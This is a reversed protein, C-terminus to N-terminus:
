THKPKKSKGSPGEALKARLMDPMGDHPGLHREPHDSWYLPGVDKNRQEHFPYFFQNRARSAESGVILLADADSNNIITHTIGSGAPFGVFDGDKLAHLYGDIWASVAGYVVFVYEEEDREAHPWSTRRGPKLLEAHVGLRSFRARRGFHADLGQDEDSGPYRSAKEDLIKRWHVAFEPKGRKRAGAPSPHGRQTRTLGDHLGLERRPADEWLKDMNKLIDNVRVDRELPHFFKSAYRPGESMAFLRVDQETNNLFAHAMGTGDNFWIGDGEELSWVHGDAWVDPTGELVFVFEEEDRSAGPPNTRCGPALRLHEVRLRTLGTAPALPAHFAFSEELGPPTFPEAYELDRWHRIFSPRAKM